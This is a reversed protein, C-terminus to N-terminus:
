RRCTIGIREQCQEKCKDIFGEDGLLIQGQLDEWPSGKQIGESVFKRYQKRAEQKNNSFLRLIWNVTLYDPVNKLGATAGYSSWKWEEPKEVM